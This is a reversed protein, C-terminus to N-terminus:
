GPAVTESGDVEPYMGCGIYVHAETLSYGADMIYEVTLSGGLIYKWGVLWNEKASIANVPLLRFNWPIIVKQLM